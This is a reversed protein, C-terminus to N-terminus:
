QDTEIRVEVDQNRWKGDDPIVKGNKKTRDINQVVCSEFAVANGAGNLGIFAYVGNETATFQATKGQVITGNPMLIKEFGKGTVNLVVNDRTWGRPSAVITLEPYEVKYHVVAANGRNDLASIHIYFDDKFSVSRTVETKTTDVISDPITDPKQDIVISYGKLGSQISVTVKNSQVERGDNQGTALIHYTYTSARDQSDKFSFRVEQTHPNFEIKEMEPLTPAALDQGSHDNWKTNTTLQSLYFLTNALIKQEDPTADGNSHGTQIMATNNWTTLYFNAPEHAWEPFNVHYHPTKNHFRFWIDGYAYNSTSHTLPVHFVTGVEGLDWPYNSLLGKKTLKLQTSTWGGSFNYGEDTKLYHNTYHGVKINFYHRLKSVGLEAGWNFGITDHGALVGGGYQIFEEIVNVAEDSLYQANNMDWAGIYVVDYKWSGDANKMYQNPHANFTHIDVPDVDILGMGYGKPHESNPSEMWMEASASKPLTRKTGDWTTYTIQPEVVPYINLVKATEKAPISQATDSGDRKQMIKYRYPQSHDKMHWKLEVYNGAHNPKAELTLVDSARVNAPSLLLTTLLIIIFPKNTKKRCRFM